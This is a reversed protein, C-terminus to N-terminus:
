YQRCRQQLRFEAVTTQLTLGQLIGMGLIYEQVPVISVKYEWPPTYLKLWTQTVPIIQRGFGGIM